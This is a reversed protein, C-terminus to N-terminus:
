HLSRLRELLYKEVDDGHLEKKEEVAKVLAAMKVRSQEKRMAINDSVVGDFDIFLESGELSKLLEPDDVIASFSKVPVCKDGAMTRIEEDTASEFSRESGYQKVFESRGERSYTAWVSIVEGSEGFIEAVLAKVKDLTGRSDEVVALKISTKGSEVKKQLYKRLADMKNDAVMYDTKKRFAEEATEDGLLGPLTRRVDEIVGSRAIKVVQYGTSEVDGTSWLVTKQVLPYLVEIIRPLNERLDTYVTSSQDISHLGGILDREFEQFVPDDPTFSGESVILESWIRRAYERYDMASKRVSVGSQDHGKEIQVQLRFFYDVLEKPISEYEKLDLSTSGLSSVKMAADAEATQYKLQSM